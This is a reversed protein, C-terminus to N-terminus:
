DPLPDRWRKPISAEIKELSALSIPLGARLRKIVIISVGAEAAMQEQTKGSHDVYSRCRKIAERALTTM